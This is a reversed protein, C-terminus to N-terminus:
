QLVELIEFNVPGAWLDPEPEVVLSPIDISHNPIRAQTARQEADRRRQKLVAETELAQSVFAAIAQGNVARNSEALYQIRRIEQSIASIERETRREFLAQYESRCLVWTGNAYAFVRSVDFPDYVLPVKARIVSPDRFIPHWYQIGNVKIGRGPRVTAKGAPTTPMCLRVFDQTFPILVHKRAGTMALGRNMAERPSMGLAPHRLNAYTEDVFREFTDTLAQLTWCALTRPDHTPSMSRPKQLAQSNGALNHIFAKNNIGFWREIVSGFRAKSGPRSKKHTTLRALLAEFYMGEFESGRDVVITKPIRGHRRVAERIVAMCSRYSPPDFTLFFAIVLRTFADFLVTLWPRGLNAGTRSDVLEIDVETHDIHGIEFPREGHRPTSQDVTWHFETIPYAAKRGERSEVVVQESRRKIEARFTKASPPTLGRENCCNRVMGYCTSKTLKSTSLLHEDIIENMVEVVARDIKRDRNGRDSIRPLLGVFRNGYSLEGDAARKRWYRATRPPVKAIESASDLSESRRIAAQVDEPSAKNLAQLALTDSENATHGVIAGRAVLGQFQDLRLSSIVGGSDELFVDTSGSNLIKWPVGDWVISTGSALLITHLPIPQTARKGDRQYRYIDAGLKDVCVGTYQQESLLERELDVLLREAAILRFVRDAAVGKSTLVHHLSVWPRGNFGNLIADDIKSDPQSSDPELYDSLFELNRILIWNIEKTSCVRFGLGFAGAFAEGPPCRWGGHGDPVYRESGDEYSKVLEEEPKIEVWGMWSEQILFYDPTTMHTVKVKTANLYTIKAKSPQDYFEYTEPDHEWSYLFALEAKHSEAQIVCAMKVSAFRTPVNHSGGGVRREPDSVRITDILKRGIPPINKRIYLQLLQDQTLM